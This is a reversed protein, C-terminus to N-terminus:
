VNNDEEWYEEESRKEEIGERDIGKGDKRRKKRGL